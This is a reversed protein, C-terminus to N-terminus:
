GALREARHQRVEGRHTASPEGGVLGVGVDRETDREMVAGVGHEVLGSGDEAQHALEVIAQQREVARATRAAGGGV